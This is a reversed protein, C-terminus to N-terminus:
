IGRQIRTALYQRVGDAAAVKERLRMLDPFSSLFRPNSQFCSQSAELIALDALTMKDGILFGSKAPNQKILKDFIQMIRPYVTERLDKAAQDKGEDSGVFTKIEELLLDEKLQVVQDIMLCELNTEGYLGNERALYTAIANGQHYEEGDIEIFPVRQFFTTPKIKLWSPVDVINQELEKGAAAMVLRSLEGRGRYKFYTMKPKSM